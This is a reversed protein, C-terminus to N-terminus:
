YFDIKWLIERCGCVGRPSPPPPVCKIKMENRQRSSYTINLANCTNSDNGNPISAIRARHTHTHINHSITDLWNRNRIISASDKVFAVNSPTQIPSVSMENARFQTRIAKIGCWLNHYISITAIAAILVNGM